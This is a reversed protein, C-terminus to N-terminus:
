ESPLGNCSLTATFRVLAEVEYPNMIIVLTAVTSLYTDTAELFTEYKLETTVITPKLNSVNTTLFPSLISTTADILCINIPWASPILNPPDYTCTPTPRM